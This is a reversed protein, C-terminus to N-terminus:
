LNKRFGGSFLSEFDLFVRYGLNKLKDYIIRAHADSGDRRYSIFIQYQENENFM